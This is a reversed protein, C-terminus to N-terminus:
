AFGKRWAVWESEQCLQEADQPAANVRRGRLSFKDYRRSNNFFKGASSIDDDRQCCHRSRLSWNTVFIPYSRIKRNPRTDIYFGVLHFACTLVCTFFPSIARHDQLAYMPLVQASEGLIASHSYLRTIIGLIVYDCPPVAHVNGQCPGFQVGASLRM